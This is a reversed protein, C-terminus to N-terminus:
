RLLRMVAYAFMMLAIYGVVNLAIWYEWSWDDPKKM